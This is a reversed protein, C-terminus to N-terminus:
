DSPRPSVVGEGSSSENGPNIENFIISVYTFYVKQIGFTAQLFVNVSCHNIPIGLLLITRFLETM